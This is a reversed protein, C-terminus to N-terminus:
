NGYYQFSVSTETFTVGDIAAFVMAQEKTPPENEEVADEEDDDNQIVISKVPKVNLMPPMQAFFHNISTNSEKNKEATPEKKEVTPEEKEVAQPQNKEDSLTEQEEDGTRDDHVSEEKRKDAYIAPSVITEGYYKVKIAAQDFTFPWQTSSIAIDTGGTIPGCNPVIDTTESATLYFFSLSVADDRTPVADKGNLSLRCECTLMTRNKWWTPSLSAVKTGEEGEEDNEQVVCTWEKFPPITFALVETGYETIRAKCTVHVPVKASADHFEVTIESEGIDYLQDGHLKVAVSTSHDM